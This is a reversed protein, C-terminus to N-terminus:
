FNNMTRSKQAFLSNLPHCIGGRVDNLQFLAKLFQETVWLNPTQKETTKFSTESILTNLHHHHWRPLLALSNDLVSLSVMQVCGDHVWRIVILLWGAKCKVGDLWANRQSSSRLEPSCRLLSAKKTLDGAVYTTYKLITYVGSCLITLRKWMIVM